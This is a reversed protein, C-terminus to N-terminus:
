HIAKVLKKTFWGTETEVVVMLIGNPLHGVDFSRNDSTVPERLLQKGLIDYIRLTSNPANKIRLQNHSWLINQDASQEYEVSLIRGCGSSPSITMEDDSYCYFQPPWYGAIPSYCFFPNDVPSLQTFGIREIFQGADGAGFWDSVLLNFKFNLLQQGEIITDGVETIVITDNRVCGSDDYEDLFVILSDGPEAGTNFVLNWQDNQYMLISDNQIAVFREEASSSQLGGNYHDVTRRETTLRKSGLGDIVTDGSVTTIEETEPYFAGGDAPLYYVWTAGPVCFDTQSFSFQCSFVLVFLLCHRKM